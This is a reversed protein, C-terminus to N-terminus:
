TPSHNLVRLEPNEISARALFARRMARRVISARVARACADRELARPTHSARSAQDREM